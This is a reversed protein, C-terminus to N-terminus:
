SACVIDAGMVEPLLGCLAEHLGPDDVMSPVGDWTYPSLGSGWGVVPRMIRHGVGLADVAWHVSIEEGAFAVIASRTDAMEVLHRRLDERKTAAVYRAQFKDISAKAEAAYRAQFEVDRRIYAAMNHPISVYWRSLSDAAMWDLLGRFMVGRFEVPMAAVVLDLAGVDTSGEAWEAVTWRQDSLEEVIACYEGITSWAPRGLLRLIAAFASYAHMAHHPSIKSMEAVQRATLTAKHATTM